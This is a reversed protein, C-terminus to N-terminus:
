KSSLFNSKPTIVENFNYGRTNMASVKIAALNIDTGLEKSMEEIDYGMRALEFVENDDLLLEAAFVNAEYEPRSKMDYLVFERLTANEALTRHLRDHGLEHSLVIRKENDCLNDNIVIFRKRMMVTYFGKLKALESNYVVGIGLSRALEEPDRTKYRKVLAEVKNYITNKM